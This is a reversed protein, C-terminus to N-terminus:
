FFVSNDFSSLKYLENIHNRLINIGYRSNISYKKKTGPNIIYNYM